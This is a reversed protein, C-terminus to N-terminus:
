LIKIRPGVLFPVTLFDFLGVKMFVNDTQCTLEKFYVKKCVKFPSQKMVTSRVIITLDLIIIM